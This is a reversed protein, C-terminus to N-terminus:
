LKKEPALPYSDHVEHLEEPYELDVNLIWGRKTNEEKKLIEEETPM